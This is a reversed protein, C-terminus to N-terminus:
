HLVASKQLRGSLQRAKLIAAMLFVYAVSGIVALFISALLTHQQKDQLITAVAAVSHIVGSTLYGIGLLHWRKGPKLASLGIFYGFYGSYAVQGFIDGLIQPILLTLGAFHSVSEIEHHVHMMTEVLAFGTASATGLLIGDMPEWIGILERKPSPLLTGLLYVLLVPLAKFLEEFFGKALIAKIILDVIQLGTKPTSIHFGGLLPLGTALGVSVLLWWPKHKHCFKHMLYHSAGALYAALIYFFFLENIKRTVLMAVVFMVTIIGPIFFGNQHLNFKKSAVPFLETLSLHHNNFSPLLSSITFNKSLSHQPPSNVFTVTITYSGIQLTDGNNLICRKQRKGNVFTDHTSSQNIVLLHDGEWDILTHYRSVKHSNLVMRSVPRNHIKSPMQAFERGFAIPLSLRPERPKSTATDKWSLQIQFNSKMLRIRNNASSDTVLPSM